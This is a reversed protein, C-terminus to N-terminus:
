FGANGFSNFPVLSIPSLSPIDLRVPHLKDTYNDEAAEWRRTPLKHDRGFAEQGKGEKEKKKDWHNKFQLFTEFSLANVKSFYQFLTSM